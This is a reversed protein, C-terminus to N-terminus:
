HWTGTVKKQLGKLVSLHLNRDQVQKWGRILSWHSHLPQPDEKEEILKQVHDLFVFLLLARLKCLCDSSCYQAQRRFAKLDYTCYLVHRHWHLQLPLLEILECFHTWLCSLLLKSLLYTELTPPSTAAVTLHQWIVMNEEEPSQNDESDVEVMPLYTFTHFCATETRRDKFGTGRLEPTLFKSWM